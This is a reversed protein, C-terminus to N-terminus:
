SVDPLVPLSRRFSDYDWYYDSEDYPQSALVLCVADASFNDLSRWVGPGVYLGHDPRTLRYRDSHYGDDVTVEVSGSTAVILQRLTRHAHAGRVADPPVGYLYYARKVEFDIERGCEVVSLHGRDDSFTPLRILSCVEVTRLVNEEPRDLIQRLQPPM